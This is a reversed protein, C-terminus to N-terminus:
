KCYKAQLNQLDSIQQELLPKGPFLDDIRFEKRPGPKNSNFMVRRVTVTYDILDGEKGTYLGSPHNNWYEEAQKTMLVPNIKEVVYFFNATANTSAVFDGPKFGNPNHEDQM